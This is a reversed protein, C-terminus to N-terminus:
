FLACIFVLTPTQHPLIVSLCSFLQNIRPQMSSVSIVVCLIVYIRSPVACDLLLVQLHVRQLPYTSTGAHTSSCYFAIFVRVKEAIERNDRELSEIAKNLSACTSVQEALQQQLEAYAKSEQEALCSRLRNNEDYLEKM